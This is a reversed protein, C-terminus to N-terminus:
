AKRAGEVVQVALASTCLTNRDVNYRDCRGTTNGLDAIALRLGGLGWTYGLDGVALRLSGAWSCNDRLNGVSLGLSGGRAGGRAGNDGLDRIALRLRSGGLGAGNDRLDRIALGLSSGGPGNYGLNAVALGLSRAGSAVDSTGVRGRRSWGLEGTSSSGAVSGNTSQHSTEEGEKGHELYRSM